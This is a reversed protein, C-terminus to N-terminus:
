YVTTLLCYVYISEKRSEKAMPQPRLFFRLGIRKLLYYFM